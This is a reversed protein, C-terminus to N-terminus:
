AKGIELGEKGDDPYFAFVVLTRDEGCSLCPKTYTEVHIATELSENFAQLGYPQQEVPNLVFKRCRM